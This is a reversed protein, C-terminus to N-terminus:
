PVAYTSCAQWNTGNHVLLMGQCQGSANGLVTILTGANDRLQVTNTTNSFDSLYVTITSGAAAGTNKINYTRNGTITPVQIFDADTAYYDKNANEGLLYRSRVRGAGILRVEDRVENTSGIGLNLTGGITVTSGLSATLGGGSNILIQGGSGQTIGAGGSYTWTGATISWNPASTVTAGAAVAFTSGSAVTLSGGTYTAWAGSMYAGSNALQLLNAGNPSAMAATTNSVGMSGGTSPGVFALPGTLLYAGGAHGDVARSQNLDITNIQASTLKEGFGWGLANARSFTM